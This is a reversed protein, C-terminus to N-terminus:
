DICSAPCRMGSPHDAIVYAEPGPTGYFRNCRSIISRVKIKLDNPLALGPFLKKKLEMDDKEEKNEKSDEQVDSSNPKPKPKPKM